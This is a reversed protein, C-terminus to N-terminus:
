RKIVASRPESPPQSRPEGRKLVQATHAKQLHARAKAKGSDSIQINNVVRTAGATKAMRTAAGKRQPIDTTGDWYVVGGQVRFKFKDAAIKSRAYKARIASEIAADNAAASKVPPAGGFVVTLTLLFFSVVRSVYLYHDTRPFRRM